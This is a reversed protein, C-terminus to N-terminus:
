RPPRAKPPPPATATRPCSRRRPRCPSSATATAARNSTPPASCGPSTPVSTTPRRTSSRCPSSNATAPTSTNPSRSASAPASSAYAARASTACTPARTPKCACFRYPGAAEFAELAPLEGGPDSASAQAATAALAKYNWSSVTVANTGVTRMQSFREIADERETADVRHFRIDPQACAPREADNDFIVVCHRSQASGDRRADGQEHEIRLSLGEEALLRMVFDYDTERYQCCISRKACPQSVALKYHAVPYDAFLDEIIELATKDQYVFCDRRTHLRDLWPGIRLRYRALGGNGGLAACDTVYGHWARRSGDALMLRLTAEQSALQATDLNALPSLCDVQLVCSASVAERATFREVVLNDSTLATELTIQRTQQGLLAGLVAQPVAAPLPFPSKM